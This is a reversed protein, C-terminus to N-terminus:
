GPGRVHRHLPGDTVDCRKHDPSASVHSARTADSPECARMGEKRSTRTWLFSLMGILAGTVHSSPVLAFSREYSGLIISQGVVLEIGIKGLMVILVGLCMWRWPPREILGHLLFYFIASIAVGSLGAYFRIEPEAFFVVIGIALASALCLAVLHRYGRTEIIWGAVGLATVDYLLHAGSFHVWNGTALRWVEGSAIAARDFVFLQAWGPILYVLLAGGCLLLTRVPLCRVAPSASKADVVM